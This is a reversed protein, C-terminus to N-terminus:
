HVTTESCDGRVAVYNSIEKSVNDYLYMYIKDKMWGMSVKNKGM